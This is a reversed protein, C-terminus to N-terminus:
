ANTNIGHYDETRAHYQRWRTIVSTLKISGMINKHPYLSELDDLMRYINKVSRDSPSLSIHRVLVFDKGVEIGLLGVFDHSPQNKWLYLIHNNDATYVRLETQLHDVEQLDPILSLLGMAIKEYDNRYKYLM